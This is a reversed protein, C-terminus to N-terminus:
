SHSSTASVTLASGKRLSRLRDTRQAAVVVSAHPAKEPVQGAACHENLAKPDIGPDVIAPLQRMAARGIILMFLLDARQQLLSRL